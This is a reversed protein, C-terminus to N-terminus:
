NTYNYFDNIDAQTVVDCVRISKKIQREGLKVKFKPEGEVLMIVNDDIKRGLPIVDSVQLNVIDQVDLLITDLVATLDVNSNQLSKEIADRRQQDKENEQKLNNKAQKILNHRLLEDLDISPLCFSFTDVVERVKAKFTLVIVSDELSIHQALRPNTENGVLTCTVDEILSRWAETLCLSVKHYFNNLIAIEIETYGRKLNYGEGSGGLLIDIIFFNIAPPFHMIMTFGDNEADAEKMNVFGVLTKDPLTKMYESYRCEVMKEINIECFVRLMSSLNSALIRIINENVTNLGRLNEKTFKKPKKFDYDKIRIEEKNKRPQNLYPDAQQFKKQKIGSRVQDM